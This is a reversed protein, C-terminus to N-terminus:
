ALTELEVAKGGARCVVYEDTSRVRRKVIECSAGPEDGSNM